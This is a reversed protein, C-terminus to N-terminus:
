NLVCKRARIFVSFMAVSFVGSNEMWAATAVCRGYQLMRKTATLGVAGCGWVLSTIENQQLGMVTRPLPMLFLRPFIFLSRGGVVHSICSFVQFASSGCNLLDTTVGAQGNGSSLQSIWTNIREYIVLVSSSFFM